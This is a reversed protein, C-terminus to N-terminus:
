PILAEYGRSSRFEKISSPLPALDPEVFETKARWSILQAHSYFFRLAKRNLLHEQAELFEDASAAPGYECLTCHVLRLWAQTM